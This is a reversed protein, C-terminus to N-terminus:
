HDIKIIKLEDNLTYILEKKQEFKKEKLENRDGFYAFVSIKGDEKEKFDLIEGYFKPNLEFMKSFKLNANKLGEWNREPEKFTVQIKEDLFKLSEELNRNSMAEYYLKLM